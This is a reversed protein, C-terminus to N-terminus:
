TDQNEQYGLVSRPCSFNRRKRKRTKIKRGRKRREETTVSDM